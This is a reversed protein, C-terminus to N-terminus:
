IIKLIKKLNHHFQLGGLHYQVSGFPLLITTGNSGFYIQNSEEISKKILENVNIVNDILDNNDIKNRYFIYDVWDNENKCWGTKFIINTINGINLKFWLLLDVSLNPNFKNMTDISLIRHKLEIKRINKNKNIYRIDNLIDNIKQHGSFLFLLGETVNNPINGYMKEYGIIFRKVKNLHVQGNISKKLSLNIFRNTNLILMLDSKPTTKDGLISDVKKENIGGGLVDIIKEDKYLIKKISSNNSDKLIDYKILEENKHGNIKMKRADESNIGSSLMVRDKIKLEKCIWIYYSWIEEESIESLFIFSNPDIILDNILDSRLYFNKLIEILHSQMENNKM